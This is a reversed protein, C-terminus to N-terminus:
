SSTRPTPRGGPELIRLLCLMLLGGVTFRIGVILLPPVFGAAYKTAAFNLGFFVAALILSIETMVTARSKGETM